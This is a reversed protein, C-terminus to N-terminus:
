IQLARVAMLTGLEEGLGTEARTQENEDMLAITLIIFVERIRVAGAEPSM